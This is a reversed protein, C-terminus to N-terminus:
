PSWRRRRPAPASKARALEEPLEDADYVGDFFTNKIHARLNGCTLMPRPTAIWHWNAQVGTFVDVMSASWRTEEPQTQNDNWDVELEVSEQVTQLPAAPGVPNASSWDVHLEDDEAPRIGSFLLATDMTSVSVRDDDIGASATTSQLPYRAGGSSGMISDLMTSSAEAASEAVSEGITSEDEDDNRKLVATASEAVSEGFTSEDEDDNRKLMAQRKKVRAKRKACKSVTPTEQLMAIIQEDTVEPARGAIATTTELLERPKNKSADASSHYASLIAQEALALVQRLFEPWSSPAKDFLMHWKEPALVPRGKLFPTGLGAAMYEFLDSREAFEAKAIFMMKRSKDDSMMAFNNMGTKERVADQGRIGLMYCHMDSRQLAKQVEVVNDVLRSDGFRMVAQKKDVGLSKWFLKSAQIDEDSAQPGPIVKLGEPRFLRGRRSKM